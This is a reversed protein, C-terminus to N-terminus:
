VVKKTMMVLKGHKVGKISKVRDAIAQVEKAKGSIVLVELCNKKDLHVHITSLIHGYYRHQINVLKEIVNSVDHDYVITLTGFVNTNEVELASEILEKRILARLAESRSEYGKRCLMKDFEKLLAKELSVGFRIIGAMFLFSIESKNRKSFEM